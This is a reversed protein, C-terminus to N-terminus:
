LSSARRERPSRSWGYAELADAHSTLVDLSNHGEAAIDGRHGARVENPIYWLFDAVDSM